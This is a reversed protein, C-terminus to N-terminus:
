RLRGVSWGDGATVVARHRGPAAGAACLRAVPLGARHRV